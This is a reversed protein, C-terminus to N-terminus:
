DQKTAPQSQQLLQQQEPQVIIVQQPSQSHYFHYMDCIVEIVILWIILWELLNSHRVALMEDVMRVIQECYDLRSNLNEKRRHIILNRATQLYFGELHSRDWYIDRNLLMCNLNISHRLEAFEGCKQLAEKRKWPIVGEKLKKTTDALPESLKDLLREWVGLKVSAAFAHSFAFRELVSDHSRHRVGAHLRGTLEFCDGGKLKSPGSEGENITFRIIDQEDLAIVNEFAGESHRELDRLLQARNADDVNWFVAVGDDFVFAESITSKDIAYESRKVLHIAHDFEDDILAASYLGLVSPDEQISTLDLSESIAIAVVKPLNKHALPINATVSRKKRGSIRGLTPHQKSEAMLQEFRDRDPVASNFRSHTHLPAYQTSTSARGLLSSREEAVTAIPRRHLRQLVASTVRRYMI